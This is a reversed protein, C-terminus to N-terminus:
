KNNTPGLNPTELFLILNQDYIVFKVGIVTKLVNGERKLYFLTRM